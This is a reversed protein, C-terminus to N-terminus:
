SASYLITVTASGTTADAVSQVYTAIVTIPTTSKGLNTLTPAKRGTAAIDLDNIYHNATGTKGLDLLDTGSSNFATEVDVIIDLIRAGAPLTGLTKATTDTYAVTGQLTLTVGENLATRIHPAVGVRDSLPTNTPM